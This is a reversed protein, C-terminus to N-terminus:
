FIFLISRHRPAETQCYPLVLEFARRGESGVMIRERMESEVLKLSIQAEKINKAIQETPVPPINSNINPVMDDQSNDVSDEELTNKIHEIM